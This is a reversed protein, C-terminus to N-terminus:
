REESGTIVTTAVDDTHPLVMVPHSSSGAGM